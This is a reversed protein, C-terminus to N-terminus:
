SSGRGRNRRLWAGLADGSPWGHRKALKDLAAPRYGGRGPKEGNEKMRRIEQRLKSEAIKADLERASAVATLGPVAGPKGSLKHALIKYLERQDYPTARGAKLRDLLYALLCKPVGAIKPGKEM